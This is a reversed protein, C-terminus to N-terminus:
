DTITCSSKQRLRDLPNVILYRGVLYKQVFVGIYASRQDRDILQPFEILLEYLFSM